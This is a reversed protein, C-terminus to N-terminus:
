AVRELVASDEDALLDVVAAEIPGQTAPEGLDVDGLAELAGGITVGAVFRDFVRPDRRRSSLFWAYTSPTIPDLFGGQM